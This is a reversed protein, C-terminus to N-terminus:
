DIDLEHSIAEKCSPCMGHTLSPLKAQDFLALKQAAEEVELWELDSIQVKKCWSCICLFDNSRKVSPDLLPVYVRSERNQIWNKFQVRDHDLQSIEMVMFRRCTPADCRFPVSITRNKKRVADLLMQYLHHTEAAAIYSWLSKNIVLEPTYPTGNENAFAYWADNAYVIQDQANIHYIFFHDQNSAYM